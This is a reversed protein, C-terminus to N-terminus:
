KVTVPLVLVVALVLATVVVVFLHSSGATERNRLGVAFCVILLVAWWM